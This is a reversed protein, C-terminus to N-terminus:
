IITFITKLILYFRHQCNLFGNKAYTWISIWNSVIHIKISTDASKMRIIGDLFEVSDVCAVKQPNTKIYM